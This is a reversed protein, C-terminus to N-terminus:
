NQQIRKDIVYISDNLEDESEVLTDEEWILFSYLESISYTLM